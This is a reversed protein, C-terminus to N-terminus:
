NTSGIGGKREEEIPCDDDTILYTDFTGQAIADGKKVAWDKNGENILAIWIHGENNKNNYYDADILGLQNKLRINYKFGSSSRVRIDLKENSQMYAKIGTPLKIEEGPKLIFDYLTYFDYGASKRTARQPLKYEDYLDDNAFMVDKYFQEKSIKEFGRIKLCFGGKIKIVSQIDVALVNHVDVKLNCYKV